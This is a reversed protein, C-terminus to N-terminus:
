VLDVVRELGRALDFPERDDLEEAIRRLMVAEPRDGFRHDVDILRELVEAVLVHLENTADDAAARRAQLAVRDLEELLVRAVRKEGREPM